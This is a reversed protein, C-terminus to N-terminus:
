GHELVNNADGGKSVEASLIRKKKWLTLIEVAFVKQNLSRTAVCTLGDTFMKKVLVHKEM